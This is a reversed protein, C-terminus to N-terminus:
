DFRVLTAGVHAYISTGDVAIASSPRLTSSEMVLGPTGGCGAVPCAVITTRAEIWAFRAASAAMRSPAKADFIKELDAASLDASGLPLRLLLGDLSRGFYVDEGIQAPLVGNTTGYTERAFSAVRSFFLTGAGETVWAINTTGGHIWRIPASGFFRQPASCGERPCRLVDVVDPEATGSTFYLQAGALAPGRPHVLGDRVVTPTGDCGAIACSVVSTGVVNAWVVVAGDVVLQTPSGAALRRVSTACSAKECAHVGTATSWVLSSPTVRLDIMDEGVDVVPTYCGTGADCGPVRIIAAGDVEGGDVRSTADPLAAGDGVGGDDAERTEGLADFDGALVLSCGTAGTVGLALALAVVSRGFASPEVDRLSSGASGVAMWNNAYCTM